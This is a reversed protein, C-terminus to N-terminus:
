SPKTVLRLNPLVDLEWDVTQGAQFRWHAAAGIMAANDTCLYIPPVRVARGADSMIKNRLLSNASVGGSLLIEAADYQDAAAKTKSVLIDVVALMFYAGSMAQESRPRVAHADGSAVVSGAVDGAMASTF